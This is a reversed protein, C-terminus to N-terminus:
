GGTPVQSAERLYRLYGKLARDTLLRQIWAPIRRGSDAQSRYALRQRDTGEVPSLVYLGSSHRLDGPRDPDLHWRMWGEEAHIERLVAYRIESLAVQLEYALGLRRGGGPIPEDLYPTCAVVAGSSRVAVEPDVLVRWIQEPSADIEVWGYAGPPDLDPAPRVVVEGAAIRSLEDATPVPAVPPAAGAVACWLAIAAIM